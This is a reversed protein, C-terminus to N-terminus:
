VSGGSPVATSGAGVTITGASALEKMSWARVERFVLNGPEETALPWFVLYTGTMTFPCNFIGNPLLGAACLYRSDGRLLTLNTTPANVVFVDCLAGPGISVDGMISRISVASGWKIYFQSDTPLALAPYPLQGQLYSTFSWDASNAATNTTDANKMYFTTATAVLDKSDAKTAGVNKFTYTCASSTMVAIMGLLVALALKLNM